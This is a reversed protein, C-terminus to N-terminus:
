NLIFDALLWKNNKKVFTYTMSTKYTTDGSGYNVYLNYSVDCSFCDDSYKRFNTIKEDQFEYTYSKGWLYAWIAPIDSVYEAAYGTMYSSLKSLSGRNIIYKGYQEGIEIIYDKQSAFLEQDEPYYIAYGDKTAEVPLTEGNLVAKIEPEAILKDIKYVTNTPATVYDSVHLCPSFAVNKETIYSDEVMVDNVYVTAGTPATIQIDALDNTYDGFSIEGIKWKTFKSKNKGASVLSVKAIATDGAKVVYVPTKESYEGAKKRYIVEGDSLKGKLYESVVKTNEFESFSVNNEELLDEIKDETFSDIVKDMCNSPIGEEYDKLFNYLVIITIFGALLLIGAYIILFKKFISLKNKKAM